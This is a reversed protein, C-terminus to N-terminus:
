SGVFVFADSVAVFAMLRQLDKIPEIKNSYRARARANENDDNRGVYKIFM